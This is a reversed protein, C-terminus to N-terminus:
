LPTTLYGRPCSLDTAPRHSRAPGRGRVPETVVNLTSGSGLNYVPGEYKDRGVITAGPSDGISLGNNVWLNQVSEHQWAQDLLTAIEKALQPDAALLEQLPATLAPVSPKGDAQEASLELAKAEPKGRLKDWLQKGYEFVKDAGKDGAKDAVKEGLKVGAQQLLPWAYALLPGAYQALQESSASDIMAEGFFRRWDIVPRM